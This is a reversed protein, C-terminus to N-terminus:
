NFLEKSLYYIIKEYKRNLVIFDNSDSYIIRYFNDLFNFGQYSFSGIINHYRIVIKARHNKKNINNHIIFDLIRNLVSITGTFSIVPHNRSNSISGDGDFYGRIFHNLLEIPIKPNIEATLSKKNGISFLDNLGEVLEKIFLNVYVYKKTYKILKNINNEPIDLCKLFKYLHEADKIQLKIHLNTSNKRIYGDALIFGAWYCSEKTYVKFFNKDCTLESERKHLLINNKKLLRQITVRHVNFIESLKKNSYGSNYLEIIESKEKENLNKVM